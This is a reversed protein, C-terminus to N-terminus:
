LLRLSDDGVLHTAYMPLGAALRRIIVARRGAALAPRIRSLSALLGVASNYVTATGAPVVHMCVRGLIGACRAMLGNYLM